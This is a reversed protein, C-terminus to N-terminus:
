RQLKLVRPAPGTPTVMTFEIEQAVQTPGQSAVLRLTYPGARFTRTPLAGAYRITGQADAPPLDVDTAGVSQGTRLLEARLGVPAPQAADTYLVVFFRLSVDTGVPLELSLTPLLPQGNMFLPDDEPKADTRLRVVGAPHLAAVSSMRLGTAPATVDLDLRQVGARSTAPDRAVAELRYRGPPLLWQGTWVLQQIGPQLRVAAQVARDDSQRQLVRGSEDKVRALVQLRGEYGEAGGALQLDSLPLQLLLVHRLGAPSVDFHLVAARVSLGSVDSGADLLAALEIELPSLGPVVRPRLQAGDPASIRVAARRSRLTLPGPQGSAPAYTLAFHGPADLARLSVTTQLEDGQLVEIDGAEVRATPRGKPDKAVFEVVVTLRSPDLNGGPRTDAPAVAWARPVSLLLATLPGLPVLRM